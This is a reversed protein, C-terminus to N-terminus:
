VPQTDPGRLAQQVLAPLMPTQRIRVGTLAAVANAIAPAVLPTAMQGVGTPHNDTAILEIHIEPIDRLRPVQYDHFNSQKVVGDEVTIRETLTLGLGYVVSSETQAVINDPQVAIGPDIATWFNHVRIEGNGRNVSVEAIGAVQTGSYDIYAFGLGRGERKKGWDAMRAVTEVVKRGRPANKLLDLRFAVPDIGRKAAIEDFFAETAFKNPGFGIGRLASTRIGTDQPIEEIFRNPIDYTKLESGLMAIFDKRGSKEYRVPDQYATVVDCAKRHHWAIFKGSADFGARMFHVTMPRFRGNHVDDERTWLVKVPKKADQSLLV